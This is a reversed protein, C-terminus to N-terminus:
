RKDKEVNKIVNYLEQWKIKPDFFESRRLSKIKLEELKNKNSILSLICELLENSDDPNFYLSANDAIEKAYPLDISILPKGLQMAETFTQPFSEVFSPHIVVDCFKYAEEIEKSNKLVNTFYIYNEISYKKIIEKFNEVFNAIRPNTPNTDLTLLFKFEVNKEKALKATEFLIEFNKYETPHAIYLIKFENKIQYPIEWKSTNEIFVKPIGSYVTYIKNKLKPFEKIISKKIHNTQTIIANAKYFGSIVFLKLIKFRIIYSLNFYKFLQTNPIFLLGQHFYAIQKVKPFFSVVNTISFLISTPYKNRAIKQVTVQQWLIKKVLSKNDVSEILINQNQFIFYKERPTKEIFVVIKLNSDIQQLYYLINNLITINGGTSAGVADIILTM